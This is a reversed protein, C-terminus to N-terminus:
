EPMDDVIKVEGRNYKELYSHIKDTPVTVNSLSSDHNVFDIIAALYETMDAQAYYKKDFLEPPQYVVNTTIIKDFIGKEYAKDFKEFGNTFLGFTVCIFVRRARMDKLQKATDIMSSGSAIIDDIVIVDKGEIDSGLFEHAVIPNTGDVIKSYDRRKYFAGADVGLVSSFYVARDLAGEDPSIVVLHDKDVKLDKTTKLLTKLFRYTAMFSDFGNLPEANSVRPDHADFTILNSVGMKKLQSIMVAADLSELGNRKHQRSEYLFPMIVNIRKAKGNIAGIVRILDSFHDDPSMYNEFGYMEYTLSHNMVDTLIFIDKGRVSELITAKAEGTGFRDLKYKIRYDDKSYDVFSPDNGSFGHVNKRLASIRENVRDGFHNASEMVILSLNGVPIKDNLKEFDAM